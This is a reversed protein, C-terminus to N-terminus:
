GAFLMRFFVVAPLIVIGLLNFGTMSGLLILGLLIFPGTRELATMTSAAMNTIGFLIKSGDLPPIPILNFIMLIANIDMTYMVMMWLPSRAQGSMTLAKLVFGSIVALILNVGPGAISVFVMDRRPNRFFYPNVPIPKAWGFHFLLLALTGIPDLHALPNLTLRGLKKATPDGFAYAVRGHAYEHLTLALLLGPIWLIFDVFKDM